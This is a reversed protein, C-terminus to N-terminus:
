LMVSAVLTMNFNRVFLLFEEPNGNDFFSMKFDYLDSTSSTPDRRLKLKVFTKNSKGYYIEQTLPIPPPDVHQHTVVAMWLKKSSVNKM